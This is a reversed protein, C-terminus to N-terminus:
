SSAPQLLGASTQLVLTADVPGVTNDQNADAKNSCPLGLLLGAEFQLIFTADISDVDGDCDADGLLVDPESGPPSATPDPTLTLTPLVTDTTTPTPTPPDESCTALGGQIVYNIEQPEGVSADSFIQAEVDLPSLGAAKCLFTIHALDADGVLGSLSIGAVRVADPAYAENCLGGQEAECDVVTLTAPDYGVDITWAGVGPEGVDQSSLTVAGTTGVGAEVSSVRLTGEAAGARVFSLLMGTTSALAVLIAVFALRRVFLRFEM